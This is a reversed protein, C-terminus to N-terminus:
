VLNQKTTPILMACSSCILVLQIRILFLGANLFVGVHRTADYSCWEDGEAAKGKGLRGSLVEIYM